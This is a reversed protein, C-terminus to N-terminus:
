RVLFGIEKAQEYKEEVLICEGKFELGLYKTPLLMKGSKDALGYNDKNDKVIFFGDKYETIEAWKNSFSTLKKWNEDYLIVQETNKNKSAFKDKIVIYEGSDSKWLSKVHSIEFIKKGDKDIITNSIYGGSKGYKRNGLSFIGKKMDLTGFFNYKAKYLEKGDAAVIGFKGDNMTVFLSSAKYKTNALKKISDYTNKFKKERGNKNIYTYEGDKKVIMGETINKIVKDDTNWFDEFADAGDLKTGIIKSYVPKVIEKGKDSIIGYKNNYRVVAKGDYFSYIDDYKKSIQKGGKYSVLFDRSQDDSMVAMDKYAAIINHYKYGIIMKGDDRLIGYKHNNQNLVNFLINTGTITSSIGRYPKISDDVRSSIYNRPPLINGATGHMAAKGDYWITKGNTSLLKLNSDYSVQSVIKYEGKKNIIIDSYEALNKAIIESVGSKQSLWMFGYKKKKKTNKEQIAIFRRDNVRTKYVESTEYNASEIEYGKYKRIEKCNRKLDLIVLGVKTDGCIYRDGLIGNGKRYVNDAVNKLGKYLENGEKDIIYGKYPNSSETVFFLKGGALATVEKFKFGTKEGNEGFYIQKRKNASSTYVVNKGYVKNIYGGVISGSHGEGTYDGGIWVIDKERIAANAPVAMGLTLSFMCTM